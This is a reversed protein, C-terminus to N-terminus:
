RRISELLAIADDRSMFADNGNLIRRLLSRAAAKDGSESLVVANHYAIDNLSSSGARTAIAEAEALVRAGEEVEGSRFLIWGYTDAIHPSDPQLEWARRAMDLAKINTDDGGEQFYLWALNNMVYPLDPKQKLVMEYQAIAQGANGVKEYYQGLLTHVPIDKPAQELWKTLPVSADGGDENMVRHLKLAVSRTARRAYAKEYAVIAKGWDRNERYFDGEIDFVIDQNDNNARLSEMIDNAQSDRGTRIELVLLNRAALLDNPDISWIKRFTQRAQPFLKEQLESQAKAHLVTKNDPAIEYAARFATLAESAKGLRMLVSGKALNASVSRPNAESAASAFDYSKEFNGISLYYRALIVAPIEATPDIDYAHEVIKIANASDGEAQYVNALALLVPQSDPDAKLFEVYRNRAAEYNEQQVDIRGLSTLANTDSPSNKLIASYFKSAQEYERQSFYWGGLLNAALSNDPWQSAIREAQKRVEVKDEERIAALMLLLAGRVDDASGETGSKIIETARDTQGNSMYAAALVVQLDLNEPDEALSREMQAIAITKDSQSISARGLMTIMQQDNAGAEIGVQLVQSAAEAKNMQLLTEALLKRTEMDGPQVALVASLLAEAQEFERRELSLAGQLAQAPRFQPFRSLVNQLYEYAADKEGNAISIRALMYLTVPHKPSLVFLQNGARKAADLDSLALALEAKGGAATFRDESSARASESVREFQARAKEFQKDALFYQGLITASETSDPDLELSSTAMAIAQQVDGSARAIEALGLHALRKPEITKSSTIVARYAEVAASVQGDAFLSRGYLTKAIQRQEEDKMGTVNINDAVKEFQGLALRARLLPVYYEDPSSGLDRARELEKEAGPADGLQLMTKGLLLRVDKQGPDTQLLNKLEILATRYEGAEYDSYASELQEEPSRQEGCGALSFVLASAFFLFLFTRTVKIM